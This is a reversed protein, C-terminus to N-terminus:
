RVLERQSALSGIGLQQQVAYQLLRNLNRGSRTDLGDAHVVRRVNEDDVCGVPRQVHQGDDKPATVGITREVHVVCQTRVSRSYGEIKVLVYRQEAYLGDVNPPCAVVGDVYEGGRDEVVQALALDEVHQEIRALVHVVDVCCVAPRELAFDRPIASHITLVRVSVLILVVNNQPGHPRGDIPAFRAARRGSPATRPTQHNPDKSLHFLEPRVPEAVLMPRRIPPWAMLSGKVLDYKM